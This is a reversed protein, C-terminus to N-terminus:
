SLSTEPVAVVKLTVHKDLHSLHVAGELPTFM